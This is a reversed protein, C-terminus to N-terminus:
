QITSSKESLSSSSLADVQVPSDLVGEALDRVDLAFILMFLKFDDEALVRLDLAKPGLCTEVSTDRFLCALLLQTCSLGLSTLGANVGLRNACIGGVIYKM